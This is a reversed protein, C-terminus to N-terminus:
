THARRQFATQIAEAFHNHEIEDQVDGVIRNVTAWQRQIRAQEIRAQAAQQKAARVAASEETRKSTRRPWM